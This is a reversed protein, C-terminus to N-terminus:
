GVFNLLVGAAVASGIVGAVNPGMAHMLLFNQPNAELGVKNSVRAAMPVASVGASGILPNIKNQSFRNMVKAMFIGAATGGCFAVMGLVLIGLTKMQLFAESSLKSGVTLGLAITVINILANRSTDALRDVVGCERLLNGFAFMGVLPAADPLLLGVLICLVLPFVIKEAQSVHRLQMMVIAREEKTTLARMIPPQILPVLAMYSYAAVAIPGLLEPALKSTVFISTPGDAGGIIAISAAERLTFEMGPIGLATLALAGLLTAFIGFQAAAGLLLTKPNALMPGFDTMAGVGMFILLPFVSTPLGVEYFLHLIGAGEGMNAVPINALIGGFGIPILLLPEFGKRIALYILGLCVLIMLAQGPELHYLGTGQWLKLLKDM